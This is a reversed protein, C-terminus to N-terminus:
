YNNHELVVDCLSLFSSETPSNLMPVKPAVVEVIYGLRNSIHEKAGRIFTIGGGTLLLPVYDPLVYGFDAITEAISECLTDLSYKVTEKVELSNFYRDSLDDITEFSDASKRASLSVKKKLKEADLYDLDFKEALMGSVYGGGYEFTKQLIIGDGQIVMLTTSIYGVDLLIAIRDRLEPEILYLSQCLASSVCEVKQVGLNNCVSKVLNYFDNECLVFSLRGKLIESYNGIPNALQRFDDLEYVIASRNILAYSDSPVLFASDFLADIDEGTIKKKKSFSIQSNKVVVKTFASPVGIYVCNLKSGASNKLSQIAQELTKTFQAVDYFGDLGFGDYEFNFKGKIIFTKNIGRECLGATIKSSGIDIVAVQKKQM